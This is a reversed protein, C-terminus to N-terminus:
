ILHFSYLLNKTQWSQSDWASIAEKNKRLMELLQGEMRYIEANEKDIDKAKQIFVLAQEYNKDQISSISKKIMNNIKEAKGQKPNAANIVSFISFTIILLSWKKM